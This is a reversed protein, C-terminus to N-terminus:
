IFLSLAVFPLHNIRNYIFYMGSLALKLRRKLVNSCICCMEAGEVWDPHQLINSDLNELVTECREVKIVM